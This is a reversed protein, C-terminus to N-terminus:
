ISTQIRDNNWSRNPLVLWGYLVLPLRYLWNDPNLHVIPYYQAVTNFGHSFVDEGLRCHHWLMTCVESKGTGRPLTVEVGYLNNVIKSRKM